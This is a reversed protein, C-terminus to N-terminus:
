IFAWEPRVDFIETKNLKEVSNPHSFFRRGDPMALIYVDGSLPVGYTEMWNSVGVLYFEEGLFLVKELTM